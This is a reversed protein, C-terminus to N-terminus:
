MLECLQSREEDVCSGLSGGCLTKRELLVFSHEFGSYFSKLDCSSTLCVRTVLIAYQKVLVCNLTYCNLFIEACVCLHHTYVCCSWSTTSPAPVHALMSASSVSLTKCSGENSRASSCTSLQKQLLLSPNSVGILM